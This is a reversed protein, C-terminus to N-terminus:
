LAVSGGSLHRFGFFAPRNKGGTKREPATGAPSDGPFATGGPYSGTGCPLDRRNGRRPRGSYARRYAAQYDRTHARVAAAEEKAAAVDYFRGLNVYRDAAAPYRPELVHPATGDAAACRIEPIVVGDLSDPDGSCHLYEVDAGAEEMARGLQRLFTNKGVGPGGKLIIFDYVSEPDALEHFLNQFGRGSNAGAFFHTIRAM